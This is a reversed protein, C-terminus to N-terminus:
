RRYRLCSGASDPSKRVMVLDSLMDDNLVSNRIPPKIEKLFKLIWSGDDTM